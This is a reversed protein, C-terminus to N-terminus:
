IAEDFQFAYRDTVQGRRDKRRGRRVLTSTVQGAPCQCTMAELDITFDEKPFHRQNPRKPVRAILKRGADAFEQRTLGDGYACDAIIEEVEVQANHESEEVLQLAQENDPANGPLITLAMNLQNEADVALGLKGGDFRKSASKHGHRMEPDHVSVIRDRSV